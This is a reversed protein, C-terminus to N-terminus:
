APGVPPPQQTQPLCDLPEIAPLGAPLSRVPYSNARLRVGLTELLGRLFQFSAEVQRVDGCAELEISVRGLFSKGKAEWRILRRLWELYKQEPTFVGVRLDAFHDHANDSVHCHVVRNSWNEDVEDPTIKVIQMHGIDLNVGVNGRDMLSKAKNDDLFMKLSKRDHILRGFSPELEIALRPKDARSRTTRHWTTNSIKEDLDWLSELLKALCEQPKIGRLYTHPKSPSNKKPTSRAECPDLDSVPVITHGTVLELTDGSFGRERLAALLDLLNGLTKVARLRDTECTSSIDPIFSALGCIDVPDGPYKREADLCWRHIRDAAKGADLEEMHEALSSPPTKLKLLAQLDEACFCYLDIVRINREVLNLIKRDLPEMSYSTLAAIEVM